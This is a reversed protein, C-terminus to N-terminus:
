YKLIEKVYEYDIKTNMNFFLNNEYNPYEKEFDIITSPLEEVLRMVRCKRHGQIDSRVENDSNIKFSQEVFLYISKCYIGCLQQIFKEAKPVVIPSISPYDLIFEIANRSILPMDCTLIFNRETKSVTLASHIGSLPGYGKYIDEIIEINLFNYLEPENSIIIIKEFIESMLSSVREILTTEGFKILSKNTGMRQSKGGALIFGTIDKYM